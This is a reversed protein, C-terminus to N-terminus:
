CGMALLFSSSLEILTQVHQLVRRTIFITFLAHRKALGNFFLLKAGNVLASFSEDSAMFDIILQVIITIYTFFRVSLLCHAGLDGVVAMPVTITWPSRNFSGGELAEFETALPRVKSVKRMVELGVVARM